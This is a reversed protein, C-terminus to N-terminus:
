GQRGVRYGTPVSFLSLSLSLLTAPCTLIKAREAASALEAMAMLPNLFRTQTESKYFSFLWLVALFM